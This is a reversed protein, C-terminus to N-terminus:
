AFAYMARTQNAITNADWTKASREASFPDNIMVSGDAALGTAVFYHGSDTFDGPGVNVVVIQGNSLANTLSWADGGIQSCSLGLGASGYSFLSGDTGDFETAYGNENAYAGMDYPSKSTDGTRAQYVMALSTPACGTLAFTTSSYETYGWRKDWQYLRPVGNSSEDSHDESYDPGDACYKTPWDRVFPIAQPENAALRLMKYRVITGDELYEDPHAAIWHADNNSTTQAILKDALEDGLINVLAADDIETQDIEPQSVQIANVPNSANAIASNETTTSTSAASSSATSSSANTTSSGTSATSASASSASATTAAATASQSATSSSGSDGSSTCGRVGSVILFIVLALAIVTAIVAKWGFREVLALWGRGIATAVRAVFSGIAMAVTLLGSGITSLVNLVPSSSSSTTTRGRSNDRSRSRTSDYSDRNRNRTSDYSDRNRSERTSSRRAPQDYVDDYGGFEDARNRRASREGQSSRSRRSSQSTSATGNRELRAQLRRRAEERRIDDEYSM